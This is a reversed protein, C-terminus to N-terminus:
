VKKLQFPCLAGYVKVKVHITGQLNKLGSIIGWVNIPMSIIDLLVLKATQHIHVHQNKNHCFM